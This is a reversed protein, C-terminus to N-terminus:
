TIETGSDARVNSRRSSSQTPSARRTGATPPKSPVGQAAGGRKPRAFLFKLVRDFRLGWSREDHRARAVERCRLDAKAASRHNRYGKGVLLAEAAHIQQRLPPAERKGVDLWIRLDPRGHLAAIERLVIGNAWWLTPSLAAVRAFVDPRSFALHLAFLGGLSAGAIGTSDRDPRTRYHHDVFPKIEDTLMRGFHQAAGGRGQWPVPTYDDTRHVGSNDIGVLILPEIKRADILKQATTGANWAVGAFATEPSFLNQGDQLYLVPHRRMPEVLYDAPLWIRVARGAVGFRSPPFRHTVLPPDSRPEVARAVM